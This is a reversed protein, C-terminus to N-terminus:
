RNVIEQAQEATAPDLVAPPFMIGGIRWFNCRFYAIDGQKLSVNHVVKNESRAIIQHQGPVLPIMMARRKECKSVPQGDVSISPYNINGVLGTYGKDGYVIIGTFQQEGSLIGLPITDVITHQAINAGTRKSEDPVACASLGLLGSFLAIRFLKHGMM